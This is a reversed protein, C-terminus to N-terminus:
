DKSFSQSVDALLREQRTGYHPTLAMRVLGVLVLVATTGIMIRTVFRTDTDFLLRKRWAYFSLWASITFLAYLIPGLPHAHFSLGIQGHLLATWSTTLGCGPCPRDFLMVSPCPPLGLQEHTGHLHHSPSLCAGILTVAVWAGFWTLQANIRKPNAEPRLLGARIAFGPPESFTTM